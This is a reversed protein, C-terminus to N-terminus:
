AVDFGLRPSCSTCYSPVTGVAVWGENRAVDYVGYPNAKGRAHSPFDHTNVEVPKGAPAWERGDNKFEGVLEKKKTDVSIVPQGAVLAHAVIENLYRFQADRDPHDSGERTKYNGQMAFGMERLLRLVTRDVLVHGMVRLEEALKAASKSTWRVSVREPDGVTVPELLGDLDKRVEPDRDTLAPRGAGPRRV